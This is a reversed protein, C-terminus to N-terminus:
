LLDEIWQRVDNESFGSARYRIIFDRDIIVNTPVATVSYADLSSYDPDNIVTYNIGFQNIWRGLDALDAPNGDEDQYICQVVVLGNQRYNNYIRVLAPAEAICPVCWMASFNLLIVNGRLSELTLSDGLSDFETFNIPINGVSYGVTPPQNNDDSSSKKCSPLFSLVMTTVLLLIFIRKM